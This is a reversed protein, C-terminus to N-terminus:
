NHVYNEEPEELRNTEVPQSEIHKNYIQVLPRLLKIMEDYYEIDPNNLFVTRLEFELREVEQFPDKKTPTVIVPEPVITPKKKKVPETEKKPLKKPIIGCLIYAERISECETLDTDHSMNYMKIYRTVTQYEIHKVNDKVWQVWQGYPIIDECDSLIEGTKLALELCLKGHTKSLLEESQIQVTLNNIQEVLKSIELQDETQTIPTDSM